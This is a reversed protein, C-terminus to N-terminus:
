VIAYCILTDERGGLPTVYNNFSGRITNLLLIVISVVNSPNHKEQLRKKSEKKKKIMSVFVIKCKYKEIGNMASISM